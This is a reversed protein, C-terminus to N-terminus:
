YWERVVMEMVRRCVENQTTQADITIVRQLAFREQLQEFLDLQRNLEVISEQPRRSHLVTASNYLYFTITPTPFFWLLFKKMWVPVYKMLFLDTCYRDTIVITRTCRKPFIFFLYRLGLDIAFLPASFIYLFRRFFSVSIRSSKEQMKDQRKLANGGFKGLPLIQGRGRGTYVVATKKGFSKLYKELETVTTSKGAGDPGIISILPYRRWRMWWLWRLSLLGFTIPSRIIFFCIYRVKRAIISEFNGRMALDFLEQSCSGSFIDNLRKLVYEREIKERLSLLIRQYEPKFYRKGLVSHLLLMVFTDNESPVFFGGKRVRNGIVFREDLYCIDNWHVGGVQVDFSVVEDVKEGVIKFFARHRLSFSNKRELFGLETMVSVFRMFEADAVVMDVSRESGVVINRGELLFDYNRLVCYMVGQKELRELVVKILEVRKM